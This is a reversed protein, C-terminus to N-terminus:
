PYGNAQKKWRLPVTLSTVPYFPILLARRIRNIFKGLTSYVLAQTKNDVSQSARLLTRALSPKVFSFLIGGQINKSNKDYYASVYVQNNQNILEDSINRVCIANATMNPFWYDTLFLIRMLKGRIINSILGCAAWM